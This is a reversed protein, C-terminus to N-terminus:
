SCGYGEVLGKFRGPLVWRLVGVWVGLRVCACVLWHLCEAIPSIFSCHAIPGITRGPLRAEAGFPVLGFGSLKVDLEMNMDAACISPGQGQVLAFAEKGRGLAFGKEECGRM